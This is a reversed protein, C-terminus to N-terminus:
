VAEGADVPQCGLWRLAAEVQPPVPTEDAAIRRLPTAKGPGAHKQCLRQYEEDGLTARLVGEYKPDLGWSRNDSGPKDRASLRENLAQEIDPKDKLDSSDMDYLVGTPIGFSDALEALPELKGKGGVEVISAGARDLDIELRRAYEPLALKETEGEVLLLRRAFFLESREPDVERLLREYNEDTPELDSARVTTAGADRRVLRVSKYDPIGVFEPSHTAYVVQNNESIARLTRYLARQPQPHLSIEPEEILFVAGAKRRKEYAEMVALFVANQFGQGLETADMTLSGETVRLELDKYFDLSAPPAFALEFEDDTDPNFGLQRLANRNVDRELDAFDQTRLV